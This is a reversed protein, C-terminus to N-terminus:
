SCKFVRVGQTSGLGLPFFHRTSVDFVGLVSRILANKPTERWLQTQEHYANASHM